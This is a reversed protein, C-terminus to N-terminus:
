RHPLCSMHMCMQLMHDWWSGVAQQATLTALWLSCSSKCRNHTPQQSSNSARQKHQSNHVCAVLRMECHRSLRQWSRTTNVHSLLVHHVNHNNSTTNHMRLASLLVVTPGPAVLILRLKHMHHHMYMLLVAPHEVVRPSTGAPCPVHMWITSALMVYHAHMHQQTAHLVRGSLMILRGVHVVHAM